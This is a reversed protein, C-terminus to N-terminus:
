TTGVERVAGVSDVAAAGCDLRILWKTGDSDTQDMREFYPQQNGQLFAVEVVPAIRPDAFMFHTYDSDSQKINQEAIVALSLSSIPNVIDKTSANADGASVIAQRAVLEDTGAVLWVRPRLNLYRAGASETDAQYSKQKSMLNYMNIAAAQAHAVTDLRYSTNSSTNANATSFLANGSNMTANAILVAIALDNPLYSAQMGFSRPVRSFADLDDNIIAQRSMTWIRGYTGLQIVEKKETLKAESYKGNEPVAVLKGVESFKIRQTSKFDNLSSIAAWLQYSTPATTYGDILSKNAVTSLILPFDGSSGSILEAGRMNMALSVLERVDHPIIKAGSRRLCDEALRLLSMGRFDNAGASPKDVKVCGSRLLVGDIAASRYSESGDRTVTASPAGGVPAAGESLKSLIVSRAEDITSGKEILDAALDHLKHRTCLSTIETIRTREAKQANSRESALDVVKGPESQESVKVAERKGTYAEAAPDDGTTLEAFTTEDVELIDNRVFKTGDVSAWARLLKIKKKMENEGIEKQAFRGSINPKITRNIGVNPDAPTPTLSAELAEWSTAVWAPGVIRGGAYVQNAELWLWRTVVFGVSVGRLTKDVEVEQRALKALETTGWRATARGVFKPDVTAGTPAAVIQAPDHNKLIAGVELLRTFNCDGPEHSLIEREGFVMVPNESSFSLSFLNDGSATADSATVRTIIQPESPVFERLGDARKNETYALKAFRNKIKM